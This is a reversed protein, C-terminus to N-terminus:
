CRQSEAPGCQNSRAGKEFLQLVKQNGSVAAIDIATQQADDELMTDLGAGMLLKFWEVDKRAVVHLVGRGKTDRAFLNAGLEQLMLFVDKDSVNQWGNYHADMIKTKDHKCFIFLATEGGNNRQNIDV